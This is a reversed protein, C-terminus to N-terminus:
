IRSLRDTISLEGPQRFSVSRAIGALIVVFDDWDALDESSVTLIALRRRDPFPFIIQAQRVIHSNPVAAGTLTTPLNVRVEEGVVLAEGAPYEAFAVERRMGPQRLGDAVAALPREAAVEAPKVLVAFQASALKTPDVDSRAVLQGVYVAGESMLQSIMMEQTAAVHVCQEETAGRMIASANRFARKVRVEPDEGLAIEFLQEPVTFRFPALLPTVGKIEGISM